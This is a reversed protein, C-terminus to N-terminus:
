SNITAKSIAERAQDTAITGWGCGQPALPLLEDVMKVLEQCSAVLEDHSNIINVIEVAQQERRCAAIDIGDGLVTADAPTIGYGGFRNRYYKVKM